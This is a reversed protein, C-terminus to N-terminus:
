EPTTGSLERIKGAAKKIDEPTIAEAQAKGKGFDAIGQSALYTVFLGVVKNATTEDWGLHSVLLVVVIGAALTLFKKSSLLQKLVEPM